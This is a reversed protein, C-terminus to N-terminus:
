TLLQNYKNNVFSHKSQLVVYAGSTTQEVGETSSSPVTIEIQNGIFPENSYWGVLGPIVIEMMHKNLASRIGHAKAKNVHTEMDVEDHM